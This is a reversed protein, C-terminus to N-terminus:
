LWLTHRLENRFAATSFPYHTQKNTKTIENLFGNVDNEHVFKGSDDVRFFEKFNFSKTEDAYEAKNKMEFTYMSVKPLSEYPNPQDPNEMAWKTKATQEMVYDCTYVQEDDYSDLLNFPTGSLTLLKTKDHSVAQLVNQALSTQTGEHAEDIIVLDWDIDFLLENKDGAKGGVRKSGRLDQISAFYIFPKDSESLLNLQEGKNKSGYQYNADAMKMKGFDDFWSDSVVPRHTMILVRQWKEEKILQLATLTKGFRMKANWLM